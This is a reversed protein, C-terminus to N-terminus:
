DWMIRNKEIVLKGGCCPCAISGDEIGKSVDDESVADAASGCKGCRHPYKAYQKYGETLEWPTVYEVGECPMAVSWNGQRTVAASKEPLYMGFDPACKMNGCKRCRIITNECNIVGDAHEDFFHKLTMGLKGKRAAKVADRYVTPFLFGVGLFATFSYDCETCRYTNGNGM